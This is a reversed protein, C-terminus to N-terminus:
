ANSVVRAALGCRQVVIALEAFLLFVCHFVVVFVKKYHPTYYFLAEEHALYRKPTRIM